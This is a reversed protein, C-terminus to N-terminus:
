VPPQTATPYNVPEGKVPEAVPISSQQSPAQNPQQYQQASSGPAYRYLICAILSILQCLIRLQKICHLLCALRGICSAQGVAPHM